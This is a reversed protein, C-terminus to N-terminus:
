NTYYEGGHESVWKLREIWNFFVSQLNDLTLEDWVRHIAIKIEEVTQFMRDKIKQKLLEFLWFDCLSLDPSYPPHPVCDLKLNAFEDTVKRRNYCMSNDM